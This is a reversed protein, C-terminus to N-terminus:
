ICTDSGFVLLLFILWLYSLSMHMGFRRGKPEALSESLVPSTEQLSFHSGARVTRHKLIRFPWLWVEAFFATWISVHIGLKLSVGHEPPRELPV